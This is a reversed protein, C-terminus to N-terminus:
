LAMFYGLSAFALARRNHLCGSSFGSGLWKFYMNRPTIGLGHDHRLFTRGQFFLFTASDKAIM